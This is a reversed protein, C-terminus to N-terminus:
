SFSNQLVPWYHCRSNSPYSQCFREIEVENILKVDHDRIDFIITRVLDNETYALTFIGTRIDVTDPLSISDTGIVSCDSDDPLLVKVSSAQAQCSDPTFAVYEANSSVSDTFSFVDFPIPIGSAAAEIGGNLINSALEKSEFRKIHFVSLTISDIARQDIEILIAESDTGKTNLNIVVTHPEVSFYNSQDPLDSVFSNCRSNYPYNSCFETLSLTQAEVQPAILTSIILTSNLWTKGLLFPKKVFFSNM